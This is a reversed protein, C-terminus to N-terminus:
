QTNSSQPRPNNCCFLNPLHTCLAVFLGNIEQLMGHQQLLEAATIGQVSDRVPMYGVSCAANWWQLVATIDQKVRDAHQM